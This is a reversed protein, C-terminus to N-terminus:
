RRASRPPRERWSCRRARERWAPRAPAPWV